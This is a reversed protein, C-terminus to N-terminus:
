QELVVQHIGAVMVESVLVVQVLQGEVAVEVVGLTLLLHVLLQQHKGLVAM